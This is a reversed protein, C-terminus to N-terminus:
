AGKYKELNPDDPNRAPDDLFESPDDDTASAAGSEPDQEEPSPDTLDEREEDM